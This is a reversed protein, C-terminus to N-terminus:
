QVVLTILVVEIVTVEMVIAIRNQQKAVEGALVVVVFVVDASSLVPEDYLKFKTVIAAARKNAKLLEPANHEATVAPAGLSAM